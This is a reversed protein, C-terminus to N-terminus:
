EPRDCRYADGEVATCCPVIWRVHTAGLAAAKERAANKAHTEDGGTGKVRQVIQCDALNIDDGDVLRAAAPSLSKSGCSVCLVVIALRLVLDLTRVARRGTM